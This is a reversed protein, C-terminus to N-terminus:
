CLEEDIIIHFSFRNLSYTGVPVPNWERLGPHEEDLLDGVEWCVVDFAVDDYEITYRGEYTEILAVDNRVYIYVLTHPPPSLHNNSM